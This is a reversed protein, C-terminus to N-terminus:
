RQVFKTKYSIPGAGFPSPSRYKKNNDDSMLRPTYKASLYLYFDITKKKIMHDFIVERCFSSWDVVTQNALQLQKQIVLSPCNM